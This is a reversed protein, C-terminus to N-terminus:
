PAGLGRLAKMQGDDAAAIIAGVSAFPPDAHAPLQNGSRRGSGDSTGDRNVVVDVSYDRITISRGQAAVPAAVSFFVALIALIRRMPFHQTSLALHQTRPTLLAARPPRFGIAGLM